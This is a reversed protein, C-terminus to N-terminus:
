AGSRRMERSSDRNRNNEVDITFAEQVKPDKKNKKWDVTGTLELKSAKTKYIGELRHNQHYKGEFSGGSSFHMVGHGHRKSESFQVDLKRNVVLHTIEGYGHLMGGKFSGKYVNGNRFSFIGKEGEPLGDKWPGTYQYLWYDGTEPDLKSFIALGNSISYTPEM